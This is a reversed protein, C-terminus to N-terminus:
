GYLAESRDTSMSRARQGQGTNVRAKASGLSTSSSSHSLDGREGHLMKQKSSDLSNLLSDAQEKFHDAFGWFARSFYFVLQISNFTLTLIELGTQLPGIHFM